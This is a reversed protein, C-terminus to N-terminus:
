DYTGLAADVYLVRHCYVHTDSTRDLPAACGPMTPSVAVLQPLM